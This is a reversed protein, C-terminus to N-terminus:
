APVEARAGATPFVEGGEPWIPCLSRFRCFMCDARPNPPYSETENLERVREILGSLRTRVAGEYEGRDKNLIPLQARAVKGGDRQYKRPERLYVLEVAKVPRHEALEPAESVALYYIGLQLNGHPKTLDKARGTKYDTIVSGGGDAPGIRDIYGSVTAGDYPFLFHTETALAPAGGYEEVWIPIMVKTVLRRFAESVAHSPFEATRWREEAAAVLADRTRDILGQECDEILKHVLHGVWAHYGARDDLGLEESLVYQLACNELKELRSFSTRIEEHLPRDLGTWDRQFWWGAPEADLAVLGRLAALRDPASAGPDALRRRWAAEAEAATLPGEDLAEVGRVAGYPSASWSLGLEAVFRSGAGGGAPQGAASAALLVTRRRARTAVVSFLRREDELRLRNRESQSRRGDLAALDFMPEPRTLSPFDGEEVGVVLVTDFERGSTAHATLVSVAGEAEGEAGFLEPVDEGAELIELFAAVGMGQQDAEAVANSLAVVADLDRRGGPSAGAEDVMRRASPLGRWLASFADQVSTSAEEAAALAQRLGMLSAVEADGLDETHDLAASAPEGAARAARVMGRALAPSLRVLDSTLIAEVRADREDPRAVWELGLRFPQVAPEELLSSGRDPVARPVGADDLARLVGGLREGHRRVVVALEDWPVDEHVHIRRLERAVV